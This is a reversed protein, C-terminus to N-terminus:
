SRALQRMEDLYQEFCESGYEEECQRLVEAADSGARFLQLLEDLGSLDGDIIVSERGTELKRVALVARRLRRLGEDRDRIFRFDAPSLNLGEYDAESASPDRWFFMTATSNRAVEAMEGMGGPDQFALWVAGMKKRINRLLYKALRVFNPSSAALTAAEDIFIIHPTPKRWVETRIRHLIYSVMAAAIRENEIARQM